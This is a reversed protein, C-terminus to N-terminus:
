FGSSAQGMTGAVGMMQSQMAANQEPLLMQRGAQDGANEINNQWQQGLGTLAYGGFKFLGMALVSAMALATSRSKGFVGLAQVSGEPSMMIAEVGLQQRRIENFADAAADYAMQVAIGDGIGWLALWAFLGF